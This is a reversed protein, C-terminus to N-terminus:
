THDRTTVHHWQPLKAACDVVVAVVFEIFVVAAVVVVLGCM